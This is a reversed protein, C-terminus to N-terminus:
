LYYYKNELALCTMHYFIEHLNPFISIKKFSNKKYKKTKNQKNTKLLRHPHLALHSLSLALYLRGHLGGARRSPCSGPRRARLVM